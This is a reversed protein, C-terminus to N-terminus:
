QLGYKRILEDIRIARDQHIQNTAQDPILTGNGISTSYQEAKRVLELLEKLDKRVDDFVM